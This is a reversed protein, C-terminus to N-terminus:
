PRLVALAVRRSQQYRRWALDDGLNRYAATWDRYLPARVRAPLRHWCQLCLLKGVKRKRGCHAPCM